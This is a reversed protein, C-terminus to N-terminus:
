CAIIIVVVLLKAREGSGRIRVDKEILVMQREAQYHIADCEVADGHWRRTGWHGELM